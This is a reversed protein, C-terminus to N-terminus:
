KEFRRSSSRSLPLFRIRTYDSGGRGRGIGVTWGKGATSELSDVRTLGGGDTKLDATNEGEVSRMCELFQWIESTRRELYAPSVPHPGCPFRTKPSSRIEDSNISHKVARNLHAKPPLAKTKRSKHVCLASTPKYHNTSNTNVCMECPSIHYTSM